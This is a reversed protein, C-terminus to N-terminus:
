GSGRRMSAMTATGRERLTIAPPGRCAVELADTREHSEASANGNTSVQSLTRRWCTSVQVPDRRPITFSPPRPSLLDSRTSPVFRSACPM